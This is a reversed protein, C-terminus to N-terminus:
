GSVTFCFANGILIAEFVSMENIFLHELHVHLDGSDAKTVCTGSILIKFSKNLPSAEILNM